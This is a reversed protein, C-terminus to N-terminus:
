RGVQGGANLQDLSFLPRTLGASPQSNFLGELGTTIGGIGSNVLGAGLAAGPSLPSVASGGGGQAAALSSFLGSATNQINLGGTLAESSLGMFMSRLAPDLQLLGSGINFQQAQSALGLGLSDALLKRRSDEQSDLLTGFELNGGTGGLRGQSFLRGELALRDQEQQESLLPNLINFQLEMIEEPSFAGLSSLFDMGMQGALDAASNNEAMSLFNGSSGFLGGQLDLLAGSAGASLHDLGKAKDASAQFFPNGALHFEAARGGSGEPPKSDGGFLSGIASTAAGVGIQTLPDVM